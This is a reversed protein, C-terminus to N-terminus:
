RGTQPRDGQAHRCCQAFEDPGDDTGDTRGSPILAAIRDLDDRDLIALDRSVSTFADGTVAFYRHSLYIEIAAGHNRPDHGPIARRCGWQEGAVGIRDLFWRVDAPDVLFYAKVGTLSPSREVYTKLAELVPKAWDAIEDGHLCTDVDIGGLVLDGGLDGLEIGIGGGRGNVLRKALQEASHKTGWTAPDDAKARGGGPSYPVKTPKDGPKAGDRVENRWAVWRPDDAFRDLPSSTDMMDDGRNRLDRIANAQRRARRAAREAQRAEAILQKLTQPQLQPWAHRFWVTRLVPDNDGLERNLLSAAYVRLFTARGRRRVLWWGGDAAPRRRYRRERNADFWQVDDIADLDSVAPHQREAASM